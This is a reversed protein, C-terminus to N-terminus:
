RNQYAKREEYKQLAKMDGETAKQYLKMDIQYEGKDKGKQYAKALESESNNYDETFQKEDKPEVDLINICKEVPYGLIGMHVMKKLVEESYEM